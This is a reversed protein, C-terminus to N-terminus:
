LTFLCGLRWVHVGSMPGAAMQMLTSVQAEMWQLYFGQGFSTPGQLVRGLPDVARVILAFRICWSSDLWCGWPLEGVVTMRM